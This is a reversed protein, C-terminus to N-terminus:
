GISAISRYPAATQKKTIRHNPQNHSLTKPIGRTTNCHHWCKSTHELLFTETTSMRKKRMADAIVAGCKIPMSQHKQPHIPTPLIASKKFWRGKANSSTIIILACCICLYHIRDYACTTSGIMHYACTTSGLVGIASRRMTASEVMHKGGECHRSTIHEKEKTHNQVVSFANALSPSAAMVAVCVPAIKVLVVMATWPSGDNDAVMATTAQSIIGDM